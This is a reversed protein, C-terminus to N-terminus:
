SNQQFYECNLHQVGDIERCFRYINTQYIYEISCTTMSILVNTSVIKTECIFTSSNICVYIM